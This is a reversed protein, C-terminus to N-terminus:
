EGSGSNRAALRQRLDDIKGGLLVALRETSLPEGAEIKRGIRRSLLWLGAVLGAGLPGSLGLAGALLRGTTLGLTGSGLREQLIAKIEGHKEEMLDAAYARATAGAGEAGEARVKEIRAELRDRLTDRDGVLQGAVARLEDLVKGMEGTKERAERLARETEALRRETHGDPSPEIPVLPATQEPLPDALRQELLEAIRDLKRNTESLDPPPPASGPLTPWPASGYEPGPAQQRRFPLFQPAPCSGGPCQTKRESTSGDFAAYVAQVSSAIGRRDDITRARILAVIREGDVDFVASGSRGEAPPPVFHVDGDAYGLVHGKWATPWTGRSCGVSTVTQGAKLTYDRSALPVVAPLVGGFASEPVAVIAADAADSRAIVRGQLPVSQHGHRWFECRVSPSRGVVHANTLVYVFGDSREFVVGTGLSNGHSIRCAADICDEMAASASAAWLALAVIMAAVVCWYLVIGVWPRKM